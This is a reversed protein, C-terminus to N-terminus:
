KFYIKNGYRLDIYDVDLSGSDLRPVLEQEALLTELRNLTPTFSDTGFLLRAGGRLVVVHEGQPLIRLDSTEFGLSELRVLLSFVDALHDREIRATGVPTTTALIETTIRYYLSLSTDPAPAFVFGTEDIFYCAEGECWLAYPNRSVASVHVSSFGGRSIAVHSLVPFAQLVGATLAHQPYFLIHEKPIFGLYTGQMGHRIYDAILETPVSEGGDIKIEHIRFEPRLVGYVGMAVVFCLLVGVLVLKHIRRQRTKRQLKPSRFAQKRM